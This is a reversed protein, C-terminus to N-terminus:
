STIPRYEIRYKPREMLSVSSISLYSFISPISKEATSSATLTVTYVFPVFLLSMYSIFCLFRSRVASFDSFHKVHFPLIHYFTYHFLYASKCFM